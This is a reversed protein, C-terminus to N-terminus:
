KKDRRLKLWLYVVVAVNIVITVAKGVSPEQAIEYIEIPLFSITVGVTLYEAWRQALLLGCGEVTFVVAYVLTGVSLAELKPTDIGLVKNLAAHILHNNPDVRLWAIWREIPWASHDKAVTFLGLAALVLLAAKLLKFVGILVLGTRRRRAM